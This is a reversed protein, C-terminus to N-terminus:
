LVGAPRKGRDVVGTLFDAYRRILV